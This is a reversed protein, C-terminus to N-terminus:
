SRTWFTMEAVSELLVYLPLKPHFPLKEVAVGTVVNLCPLALILRAESSNLKTCRRPNISNYPAKLRLSRLPVVIEPVEHENRQHRLPM